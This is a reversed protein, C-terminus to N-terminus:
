LCNKLIHLIDQESLPVWAHELGETQAIHRAMDALRDTGIGVEELRKPMGLSAFFQETRVIAQDTISCTPFLQEEKMSCNLFSVPSVIPRYM